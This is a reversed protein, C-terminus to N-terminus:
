KETLEIFDNKFLAEGDSFVNYTLTEPYDQSQHFVKVHTDFEKSLLKAFMETQGYDMCRDTDIIVCWDNILCSRDKAINENIHFPFIVEETELHRNFYQDLIHSYYIREYGSIKEFVATINNIHKVVHKIRTVCWQNIEIDDASLQFTIMYFYRIM